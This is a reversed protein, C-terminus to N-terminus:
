VGEYAVNELERSLQKLRDIGYAIESKSAGSFTVNFNIRRNDNQIRQTGRAGVGDDPTVQVRERGSTNDGVQLFSNGNTMFDAGTAASQISAVAAITQATVQAAVAIQAALAEQWTSSSSWITASAFAGALNGQIIADIAALERRKETNRTAADLSTHGLNILANTMDQMALQERLAIDSRKQAEQEAKDTKMEELELQKELILIENDLQEQQAKEEEQIRAIREQTYAAEDEAAQAAAQDKRAAAEAAKRAAEAKIEEAVQESSPSATGGGGRLSEKMQLKFLDKRAADIKIQIRAVYDAIPHFQGEVEAKLQRTEAEAIMYRYNAIKEQLRAIEKEGGTQTEKLGLFKTISELGGLVDPLIRRSMKVMLNNWEIQLPIIDEGLEEKMDGMLNKQQEMKGFDTAALARAQGKYAAELARLASAARESSGVAGEVQLGYESLANTESAITKTVLDAAAGLKMGKAAAMDQIAPILQMIIQEEKIFMGVLAQAQITEEDGFTTVQQLAAAQDLLAQSVGDMANELQKEAQVQKGYLDISERGLATLKTWAARVTGLIAQAGIFGKLTTMFSNAGQSAGKFSKKASAETERLEKQIVDLEGKVFNKLRAEMELIADAM